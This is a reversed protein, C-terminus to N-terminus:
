ERWIDSATIRDGPRDDDAGPERPAHVIEVLHGIDRLARAPVWYAFGKGNPDSWWERRKADHARIWGRVDFRPAKGTVLVFIAAPPDDPRIILRADDRESTRVQLDGVDGGRFTGKGAWYAGLAKAVACEGAAGEIHVGWGDLDEPGFRDRRGIGLNEVQRLVASIAAQTLEDLTLDITM